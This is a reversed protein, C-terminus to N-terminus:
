SGIMFIVEANMCAEMALVLQTHFELIDALADSGCCTAAWDPSEQAQRALRENLDKIWHIGLSASVCHFEFTNGGPLNLQYDGSLNDGYPVFLNGYGDLFRFYNAPVWGRQHQVSLVANAEAGDGTLWHYSIEPMLAKVNDQFEVVKGDIVERFKSAYAMDLNAFQELVALKQAETEIGEAPLHALLFPGYVMTM